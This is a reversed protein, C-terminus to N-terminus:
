IEQYVINSQLLSSSTKTFKLQGTKMHAFYIKFDPKLSLLLAKQYVLFILLFNVFFKLTQNEPLPPIFYSTRPEFNM